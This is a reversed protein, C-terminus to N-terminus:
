VLNQNKSTGVYVENQSDGIEMLRSLSELGLVDYGDESSFPGVL